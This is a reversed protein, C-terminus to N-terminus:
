IGLLVTGDLLTVLGYERHADVTTFTLDLDADDCNADPNLAVGQATAAAWSSTSVCLVLFLSWVFVPFYRMRRERRKGKDQCINQTEQFEIFREEKEM